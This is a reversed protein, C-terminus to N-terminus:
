QMALEDYLRASLPKGGPAITEPLPAPTPGDSSRIERDGAAGDDAPDEESSTCIPEESYYESDLIMEGEPTLKLFAGIRARLEDPLVPARQHVAQEEDALADYERDLAGYAEADLAENDMESAIAEQRASIYELRKAQQETLPPLSLAVRYLGAAASHVYNSAIPRVWALGLEEGM